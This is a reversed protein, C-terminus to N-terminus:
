ARFDREIDEDDGGAQLRSGDEPLEAQRQVPLPTKDDILEEARRGIRRDVGAAVADREGAASQRADSHMRDPLRRDQEVVHESGQLPGLGAAKHRLAAIEPDHVQAVSGADGHAAAQPPVPAASEMQFVPDVPAEEARIARASGAPGPSIM